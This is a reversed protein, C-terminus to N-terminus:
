ISQMSLAAGQHALMIYLMLINLSPSVCIVPAPTISLFEAPAPVVPPPQPSVGGGWMITFRKPHVAICLLASYVHMMWENMLFVGSNQVNQAILFDRGSMNKWTWFSSMDPSFLVYPWCASKFIFTSLFTRWAIGYFFWETLSCRKRVQKDDSSCEKTESTSM